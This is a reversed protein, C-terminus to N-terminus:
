IYLIRCNNPSSLFGAPLLRLPPLVVSLGFLGNGSQFLLQRVDLTLQRQRFGGRVIKEKLLQASLLLLLLLLQLFTHVMPQQQLLLGM